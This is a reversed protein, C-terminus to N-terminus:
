TLKEKGSSCLITGRLFVWLCRTGIRARDLCFYALITGGGTKNKEVSGTNWDRPLLQQTLLIDCLRDKERLANM